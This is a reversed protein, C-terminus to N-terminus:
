PASPSLSRRNKLLCACISSRQMSRSRSATLRGVRHDHRAPREARLLTWTTAIEFRDIRRRDVIGAVLDNAEAQMRADPHIQEQETLAFLLHVGTRTKMLPSYSRM